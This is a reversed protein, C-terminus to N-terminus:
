IEAPAEDREFPKWCWMLVPNLDDRPTRDSNIISTIILVYWDMGAAIDPYTCIHLIINVV